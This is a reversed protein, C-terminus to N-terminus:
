RIRIIFNNSRYPEPLESIAEEAESVTEFQGIGVRWRQNGDPLTAQWLTAKFDREALRDREIQAKKENHLSHVVITYAGILVEEEPGTLGFPLQDDLDAEAPEPEEPVPEPEEEAPEPEPEPVMEEPEDAEEEEDPLPGVQHESPEDQLAAVDEQERRQEQEDRFQRDLQLGDFHFYLLIAAIIVAAAPIFWIAYSKKEKADGGSEKKGTKSKKGSSATIKPIDEGESAKGSEEGSLEFPDEESEKELEQELEKGIEEETERVPDQEPEIGPEEGPDEDPETEPEEQFEKPLEEQHEEGSEEMKEKEPEEPFEERSEEPDETEAGSAEEGPDKSRPTTMEQEDKSTAKEPSEEEEAIGFPDDEQGAEEGKDKEQIKRLFSPSVEIPNMGAYKHNVEIALKEDPVFEIGPGKKRFTGLGPVHSTEKEGTEKIINEIWADFAAEADKAEVGLSKALKSILEEHSLKM